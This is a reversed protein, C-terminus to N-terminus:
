NIIILKNVQPNNMIESRIILTYFGPKLHFLYLKETVQNFENVLVGNCDFVQVNKPNLNDFSVEGSTPNPHFPFAHNEM